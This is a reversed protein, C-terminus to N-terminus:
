GSKHKMQEEGREGTHKEIRDRGDQEEGCSRGERDGKEERVGKWGVGTPSKSRM